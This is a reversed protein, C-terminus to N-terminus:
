MREVANLGDVANSYVACPAMGVVGGLIKPAITPSPLGITPM